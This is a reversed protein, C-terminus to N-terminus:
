GQSPGAIMPQWLDLRTRITSWYSDVHVVPFARAGPRDRVAWSFPALEDAIAAKAIVLTAFAGTLFTLGGIARDRMALATRLRPDETIYALYLGPHNPGTHPCPAITAVFM